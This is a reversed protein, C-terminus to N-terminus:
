KFNEEKIKKAIKRLRNKYLPSINKMFKACSIFIQKEYKEHCDKCLNHRGDKDEGGIYKPIDHSLQIDKEEFEDLCKQCIM